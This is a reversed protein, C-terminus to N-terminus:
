WLSRFCFSDRCKRRERVMEQSLIWSRKLSAKLLGNDWYSSRRVYETRDHSIRSALEATLIPDDNGTFMSTGFAAARAIKELRLGTLGPGARKALERAKELDPEVGLGESLMQARVKMAISDGTRVGADLEQALATFIKLAGSSDKESIIGDRLAKGYALKGEPLNKRVSIELAAKYRNHAAVEARDKELPALQELIEIQQDVSSMKLFRAHWEKGDPEAALLQLAEAVIQEEQQPALYFHNAMWATAVILPIAFLAAWKGRRRLWRKRPTVIEVDEIVPPKRGSSDFNSGSM